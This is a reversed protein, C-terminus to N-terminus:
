NLEYRDREPRPSRVLGFPSPVRGTPMNNEDLCAKITSCDSLRKWAAKEGNPCRGCGLGCPIWKDSPKCDRAELWVPAPPAEFTEAVDDAVDIEAPSCGSPVMSLVFLLAFWFMSRM